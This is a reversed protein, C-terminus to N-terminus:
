AADRWEYRHHLGGVRPLAVVRASPSPRPTVPRATPTDKGLGLHARDDHYYGIYERVLRVLHRRSLVVVHALLERRSSGVWREAFPNQWPSRFAIRKPQTGASQIFAVVVPSFISDRDFILHRPGTEYPFAERLQQVVWEATPNYTANFHLVRRRDHHIVFFGYLVRMSATPVTFFDMSATVECHNRLFAVWRKLVEPPPPKRPMYRSVTRESVTLGLKLLEGHIRPAGWENDLAMRRILARLEADIRPRGPRRGRSLRTWYRRFRRQHWRVVTDPHVLALSGAWGSWASRLAVWFVRHGDHLAPRPRKQKLAMVQQRLAINELVLDERGRAVARVAHILLMLTTAFFKGM